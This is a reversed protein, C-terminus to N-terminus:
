HRPQHHAPGLRGRELHAPHSERPGPLLLRPQSRPHDMGPRRQHRGPPPLLRGLHRLRPRPHRPLRPHALPLHLRRDPLRHPHSQRNRSEPRSLRGPIQLLRHAPATLRTAPTTHHQVPLTLSHRGPHPARRRARSSEGHRAQSRAHSTHAEAPHQLQRPRILCTEFWELQLGLPSFGLRPSETALPPRPVSAGRVNLRDALWAASARHVPHLQEPSAWM